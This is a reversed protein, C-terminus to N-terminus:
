ELELAAAGSNAQLIRVGDRRLLADLAILNAELDDVILFTVM